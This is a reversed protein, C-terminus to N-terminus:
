IKNKRWRLLDFFPILLFVLYLAKYRVIAGPFPVTYGILLLGTLAIMILFLYFPVALHNYIQQRGSVVALVLVIMVLVVEAFAMVHFVGKLETIYPRLFVHNAAQPLIKIYSKLDPELSSLPLVTNAQLSLFQHQKEALKLPLNFSSPLHASLFFCVICSAYVVLFSRYTKISFRSSMWWAAGAPLLILANVNRLLFVSIFGICCVVLQVPSPRVTICYHLAYILIGTFYVILGDKDLGSNWFLCSPLFFILFFVFLRNNKIYRTTVVYICYLGWFSLANFLIVNIYYNGRSLVNFVALLKILINEGANSWFADDATSFFDAANNFRLGTTFFLVPDSLLKRYEVLSENFYTWSDSTDFVHAYLYGYAMGAIVKAAFAGAVLWKGPVPNGRKQNLWVFLLSLGALYLLGAIIYLIFSM